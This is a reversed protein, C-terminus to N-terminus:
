TGYGSCYVMTSSGHVGISGKGSGYLRGWLPSAHGGDGIVCHLLEHTFAPVLPYGTYRYNPYYVGWSEGPYRIIYINSTDIPLTSVEIRSYLCVGITNGYQVGSAWSNAQPIWMVYDDNITILPNPTQYEPFLNGFRIFSDDIANDIEENTILGLLVSNFPGADRLHGNPTTSYGSPKHQLWPDKGHDTDKGCGILGAM